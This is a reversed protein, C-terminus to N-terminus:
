LLTWAGYRGMGISQLREGEGEGARDAGRRRHRRGRGRSSEPKAATVQARM